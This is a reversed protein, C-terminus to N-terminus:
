HSTEKRGEGPSLECGLWGMGTLRGGWASLRYNPSSELEGEGKKRLDRELRQDSWTAQGPRTRKVNRYTQGGWTDLRCLSTEEARRESGM